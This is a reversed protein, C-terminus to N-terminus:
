GWAINGQDLHHELCPQPHSFDGGQRMSVDLQMGPRASDMHTVPFSPFGTVNGEIRGDASRQVSIQVCERVHGGLRGDKQAFAPCRQRHATYLGHDRAEGAVGADLTQGHGGMGQPVGKSQMIELLMRAFQPSERVEQAM